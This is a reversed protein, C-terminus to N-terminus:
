DLRAPSESSSFLKGCLNNKFLVCTEYSRLVKAFPWDALIVNHFVWCCLLPCDPASKSLNKSGNSFVPM